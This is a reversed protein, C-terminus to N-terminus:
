GREEVGEELIRTVKRGKGNKEVEVKGRGGFGRQIRGGDECIERGRVRKGNLRKMIRGSRSDRRSVRYAERKNEARKEPTKKNPM